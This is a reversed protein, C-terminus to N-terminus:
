DRKSVYGTIGLIILPNRPDNCIITVTKSINGEKYHTDATCEIIGTDGPNINTKNSSCACSGSSKVKEIILVSKGINTFIFNHSPDQGEMVAGFDFNPYEFNIKPANALEEPTYKSFDHTVRSSININKEPLISDNTFLIIRDSFWGSDKRKQGNYFIIITGEQYPKLRNDPIIKCSLYDPLDPMNITMTEYWDNFINLTDSVIDRDGINNFYISFYNNGTKATRLHGMVDPYGDVATKIVEGSIRIFVNEHESDNTVVEIYKNFPGSMNKPNITVEITDKHGPFVLNNHETSICTCPSYIGSIELTKNGTNRFEIQRTVEGKNARIKGFDINTTTFNITAKNQASATVICLTSVIFILISFKSM